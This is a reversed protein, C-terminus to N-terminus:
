VRILAMAEYNTGSKNPHVDIGDDDVIVVTDDGSKFSVRVDKYQHTGTDTIRASLGNANNDQMARDTYFDYPFALDATAKRRIWVAEVYGSFQAEMGPSTTGDGTFEVYEVKVFNDSRVSYATVAGNLYVHIEKLDSRHWMLGEVLTSPDSTRSPLDIGNQSVSYDSM